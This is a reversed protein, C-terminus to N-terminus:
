SVQDKLHEAGYVKPPSFFYGLRHIVRIHFKYSKKNKKPRKSHSLNFPWSRIVLQAQVVMDNSMLLTRIQQIYLRSDDAEAIMQVEMTHWTAMVIILLLKPHKRLM